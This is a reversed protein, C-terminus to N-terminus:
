ELEKPCPVAEGAALRITQGRMPAPYVDACALIAPVDEPTEDSVARSAIQRVVAWRRIVRRDGIPWSGFPTYYRRTPLPPQILTEYAGLCVSAADETVVWELTRRFPLPVATADVMVPYGSPPTAPAQADVIAACMLVALMLFPHRPSFRGM